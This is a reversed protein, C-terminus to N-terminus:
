DEALKVLADIDMESLIGRAPTIGIGDHSATFNFFSTLDSARRLSAAWRSLDGADGTRFTHVTLPPLSFQYVMQAENQGDGFYSINEEHPVNTETILVTSPAVLNLVERMLQIIAHTQPLHICSTGIEKWMFAIAD